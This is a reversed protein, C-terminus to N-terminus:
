KLSRKAAKADRAVVGAAEQAAEAVVGRAVTAEEATTVTAEKAAVAVRDEAVKAALAAAEMATSTASVSARLAKVSVKSAQTLAILQQGHGILTLDVRDLREGLTRGNDPFQREISVLTQGMKDMRGAWRFVGLAFRGCVGLAVLIAASYLIVDVWWTGSAPFWSAALVRV